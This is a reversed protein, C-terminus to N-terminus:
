IVPSGPVAYTRPQPKNVPPDYVREPLLSSVAFLRLRRSRMVRRVNM